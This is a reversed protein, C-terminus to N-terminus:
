APFVSKWDRKMDALVWAYGLAGGLGQQAPQQPPHGM